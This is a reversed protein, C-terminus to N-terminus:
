ASSEDQELEVEVTVSGNTCECCADTPEQDDPVVVNIELPRYGPASVFADHAGPEARACDSGDELKCSTLMHEGSNADRAQVEIGTPCAYCHAESCDCAAALLSVSFMALLASKTM